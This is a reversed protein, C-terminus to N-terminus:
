TPDLQDPTRNVALEHLKIVQVLGPLTNRSAGELQVVLDLADCKALALPGYSGNRHAAILRYRVNALPLFRGLSHLFTKPRSLYEFGSQFDRMQAFDVDASAGIFKLNLTSARV